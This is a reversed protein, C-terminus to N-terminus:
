PGGEAARDIFLAGSTVVREGASLGSTVEVMEGSSRGIRIRRSAVTGDDRAIWVHADSGEYIIAGQPVGVGMAKKGMIIRIGAFMMPKLMLDRNEVEARVPLRHTTPDITSSIWTLRASFVRGPYAPVTVEVSQGLRIRSADAERVNAVAWVKSLNGITYAPTTGGAAASVVNQGLGVQRQIVIGAIPALLYSGPNVKQRDPDHEIADIEADSNGLMRLQDRASALIAQQTDYSSQAAALGSQSQQWAGPNAAKADYLERQRAETDRAKELATRAGALAAVATILNNRAQIFDTTEVTMLPAGKAVVDGTRAILRSVRGTYPSFVQTTTNEDNAIAGDTVVESQFATQRVTIVHFGAWQERTPRFAEGSKQSSTEAAANPGQLLGLYLLGVITLNAAVRLWASDAKGCLMCYIARFDPMLM